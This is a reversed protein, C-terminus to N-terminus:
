EHTADGYSFGQQWNHTIGSSTRVTDPPPPYRLAIVQGERGERGSTAPRVWGGAIAKGTAVTCSTGGHASITDSSERLVAWVEFLPTVDSSDVPDVFLSQATIVAFCFDGTGDVSVGLQDIIQDESQMQSVAGTEMYLDRLRSSLELLYPEAQRLKAMDTASSSWSWAAFALLGIIALAVMVDIAIFGRRRRIGV